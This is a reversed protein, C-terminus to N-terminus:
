VAAAAGCIGCVEFRRRKWRAVPIFFISLQNFERMRTWQTTNHCNPCTRMEGPGLYKQKKGFSFFLLM